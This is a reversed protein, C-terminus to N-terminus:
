KKPRSGTGESREGAGPDPTSPTTSPLTSPQVSPSSPNEKPDPQTSMNISSQNKSSEQKTSNSFILTAGSIILSALSIWRSIKSERASNESSTASAKAAKLFELEIEENRQIQKLQLDVKSTYGGEAYFKYTRDTCSVTKIGGAEHYQILNDDKLVNILGLVDDFNLKLDKAIGSANTHIKNNEKKKLIYALINDLKSAEKQTM